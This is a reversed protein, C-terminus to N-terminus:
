EEIIEVTSESGDSALVLALAKAAKERVIQMQPSHFIEIDTQTEDIINIVADLEKLSNDSRIDFVVRNNDFAYALGTEDFVANVEDIFSSSLGQDNEFWAIAQLSRNSIRELGEIINKKYVNMM